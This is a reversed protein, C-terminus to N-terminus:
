FEIVRTRSSNCGVSQHRHWLDECSLISYHRMEFICAVSQYGLLHASQRGIVLVVAFVTQKETEGHRSASSPIITHTSRFANLGNLKFIVFVGFM